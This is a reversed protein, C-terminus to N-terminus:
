RWRRSGMGEGEGGRPASCLVAWPVVFICRSTTPLACRGGRMGVLNVTIDSESPEGWCSARWWRRDRERMGTEGPYPPSVRASRSSRLRASAATGTLGGAPCGRAAEVSVLGDLRPGAGASSVAGAAWAALGAAGGRSPARPACPASLAAGVLRAAAGVAAGPAGSAPPTAGACAGSAERPAVVAASPPPCLACPTSVVARALRAVAGAPWAAARQVGRGRPVSGARAWPGEGPAAAAEALPLSPAFYRAWVLGLWVWVLRGLGNEGLAAKGVPRVRCTQGGAGSREGGPTVSGCSHCCCSARRTIRSPPSPACALLTGAMPARLPPCSAVPPTGLSVRLPCAVACAALRLHSFAPLAGLGAAASPSLARAASPPVRSSSGPLPLPVLLVRLPALLAGVRAAVSRMSCLPARDALTPAALPMSVPVPLARAGATCALARSVPLPVWPVSPPVSAHPGPFPGLPLPLPATPGPSLCSPAHSGHASPPAFPPPPPAPPGRLRMHLRHPADGGADLLHGRVLGAVVVVVVGVEVVDVKVGSVEDGGLAGSGLM